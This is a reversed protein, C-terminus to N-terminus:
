FAIVVYSIIKIMDLARGLNKRATRKANGPSAFYSGLIKAAAARDLSM